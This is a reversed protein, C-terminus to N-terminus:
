LNALATDIVRNAGELHDLDSYADEDGEFENPQLANFEFGIPNELKGDEDIGYAYEVQVTGDGFSRFIWVPLPREPSVPEAMVTQNTVIVSSVPEGKKVESPGFYLGLSYKEDGIEVQDIHLKKSVLRGSDDSTTETDPHKNLLAMGKRIPEMFRRKYEAQKAKDVNTKPKPIETM